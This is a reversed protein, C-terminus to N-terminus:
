KYKKMFDEHFGKMREGFDGPALFTTRFHVTGEKQGFGSGPVVCIGTAELLERCYFADPAKDAKKAAEIAKEPLTISPFLYMAGMPKQCSFGELSEFTKHLSMARDYLTKFINDQQKRFLPYSVDGEVPPKVMCDVLIQGIVPSCLNISALKYLQAIADETMNLLEVYGGRQGCEGIMGKSTSHLSALPVNKLSDHSKLVSRFSTFPPSDPFVNSQYVEDAICILGKEKCFELVQKIADKPLSGGTPNGPNIIVMARPKTGEKIAKEYSSTLSEINTTWGNEEELYYPIPTGNYLALAATYLPYQPIPIMIGVDSSALMLQFLLHVGASAGAVLYIDKESADAGSAGDRRKIYEAIHKRVQPVGQSQTYAGVSGIEALLAEARKIADEPYLKSAVDRNEPKLLDPYECLSVIQRFFTIPQQDLQQPNGINAHIVSDFGLSTKAGEDEKLQSRLEEARIALEGRVAYSANLVNPNITSNDLAPMHSPASSISALKRSVIRFPSLSSVVRGASYTTRGLHM